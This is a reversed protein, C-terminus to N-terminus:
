LPWAKVIVPKQFMSEAVTDLLTTIMQSTKDPGVDSAKASAPTGDMAAVLLCAATTILIFM